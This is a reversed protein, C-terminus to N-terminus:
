SAPDLTFWSRGLGTTKPCRSEGGWASPATYISHWEAIISYKVELELGDMHSLSVNRYPLFAIVRSHNSESARLSRPWVRFLSIKSGGSRAGLGTRGWLPSEPAM